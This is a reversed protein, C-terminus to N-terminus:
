YETTKNYVNSILIGQSEEQQLTNVFAHVVNAETDQYDYGEIKLTNPQSM